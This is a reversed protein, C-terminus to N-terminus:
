LKEIIPQPTGAVAFVGQWTSYSGYTPIFENVTPVDPLEAMRKPSVVALARVTGELVHPTVTSSNLFTIPVEGGLLAVLQEAGAKYPIHHLKTGTRLMLLEMYLHSESGIGNSAFDYKDPNAKVLDVLEGLTKVPLKTNVVLVSVSENILAVPMFDTAAN